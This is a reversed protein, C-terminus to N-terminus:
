IVRKETKTQRERSILCWFCFGGSCSRRSFDDLLDDLLLLLLLGLVLGLIDHLGELDAFQAHINANALGTISQGSGGLYQFLQSALRGDEGFTLVM